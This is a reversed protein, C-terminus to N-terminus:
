DGSIEPQYNFDVDSFSQIVTDADKLNQSIENGALLGVVFIGAGKGSVVGNERNEFAICDSPGLHLKQMAVMYPQPDPKFLSDDEECVTLKFLDEWDHAHVVVEVWLRRSSTVIALKINRNKAQQLISTVGPLEDAMAIANVYRNYFQNAFDLPSSPLKYKSLLNKLFSENEIDQGDVNWLKYFLSREDENMRIGYDQMLSDFVRPGIPETDVLTGDMDFLLAKISTSIHFM